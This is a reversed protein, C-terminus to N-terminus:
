SPSALTTMQRELPAVAEPSIRHPAAQEDAHGDIRALYMQTLQRATLICTKHHTRVDNTATKMVNFVTKASPAPQSAQSFIATAVLAVAAIAQLTRGKM